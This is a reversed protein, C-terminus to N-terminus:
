SRDVGVQALFYQVLLELPDRGFLKPRDLRFKHISLDDAVFRVFYNIISLYYYYTQPFIVESLVADVRGVM